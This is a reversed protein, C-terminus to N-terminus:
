RRPRGRGLVPKPRGAEEAEQQKRAAELRRNLATVRRVLIGVLALALVGLGVKYWTQEYGLFLLPWIAMLALIM